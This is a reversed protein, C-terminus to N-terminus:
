AIFGKFRENLVKKRSEDLVLINNRREESLPDIKGVTNRIGCSVTYKRKQNSYAVQVSLFNVHLKVMFDSICLARGIRITEYPM